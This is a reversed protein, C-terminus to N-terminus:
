NAMDPANAPELRLIIRTPKQEPEPAQFVLKSTDRTCLMSESAPKCNWGLAVLADNFNLLAKHVTDRTQLTTQAVTGGPTDFVVRESAVEHVGDIVPVDPFGELFTPEESDQAFASMGFCFAFAAATFNSIKM